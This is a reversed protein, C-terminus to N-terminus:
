TIITASVASHIEAANPVAILVFRLEVTPANLWPLSGAFCELMAIARCPEACFTTSRGVMNTHLVRLNFQLLVLALDRRYFTGSSRWTGFSCPEYPRGYFTVLFLAYRSRRPLIAVRFRLRDSSGSPPPEKQRLLLEERM